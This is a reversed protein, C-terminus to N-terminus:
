PESKAIAPVKNATADEKKPPFCWLYYVSFPLLIVAAKFIGKHPALQFTEILLVVGVLGTFAVLIGLLGAICKRTWGLGPTAGVLSIWIFVQLDTMTSIVQDPNYSLLPSGSIRHTLFPIIIHLAFWGLGLAAAVGMLGSATFLRLFKGYSIAKQKSCWLYAICAFLAITLLIQGYFNYIFNVEKPQFGLTVSVLITRFLHYVYFFPVFGLLIIAGRRWWSTPWAFIVAAFFVVMPSSLCGEILSIKQFSFLLPHTLSFHDKLGSMIWFSHTEILGKVWLGFSSDLFVQYLGYGCLYGICFLGLSRFIARNSKLLSPPHSHVNKKTWWLFIAMMGVIVIIQGVIIHFAWFSEPFRSAVLIILSTRLLNIFLLTLLGLFLGSLRSKWPAPFPLIAAAYMMFVFSGTCSEAIEFRSSATIVAGNEVEVHLGLFSLTWATVNANIQSLKILIIQHFWVSQDLWYFAGLLVCFLIVWRINQKDM